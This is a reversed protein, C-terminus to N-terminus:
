QIHCATTMAHIVSSPHCRHRIPQRVRVFHSQHRASQIDSSYLRSINPVFALRNRQRFTKSRVSPWMKNTTIRVNEIIPNEFRPSRLRSDDSCSSIGFINKLFHEAFIKRKMLQPHDFFNANSLFIHNRCQM